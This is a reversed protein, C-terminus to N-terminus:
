RELKQYAYFTEMIDMDLKDYFQTEVCEGYFSLATNMAFFVIGFFLPVLIAAEITYSGKQWSM